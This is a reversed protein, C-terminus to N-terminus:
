PTDGSSLHALCLGPEAFPELRDVTTRAKLAAMAGQMLGYHLQCIIQQTQSEVLELFPCNRLGIRSGSVSSRQEPAFGIDTLLHVLRHVAGEETLTVAPTPREILYGGWSRGVQIAKAAPDVDAAIASLGMEALLRYSRPGNPPMGQRARFMQPPRGPGTPNRLVREVQGDAILADLHFRVTNPHIDLQDAIEVVTVATDSGRILEAILQRRGAYPARGGAM